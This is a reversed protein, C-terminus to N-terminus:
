KIYYAEYHTAAASDFRKLTEHATKLIDQKALQAGSALGFAKSIITDTLAEADALASSRHRCSEYVSIFLKDRYFPSLNNESGKVLVARPSDLAELTTFISQCALCKRRRWVRNLKKQLRSNIVNTSGSCYICVM